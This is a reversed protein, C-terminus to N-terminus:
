SCWTARCSAPPWASSACCRSWCGPPTAAPGSRAPAPDRRADPRRAGHPGHLRRRGQVAPNLAVLFDVIAAPRRRDPRLTPTSRGRGPAAGLSTPWRACTPSSTPRAPAATTPSRSANPALGRRLLRVPQDGDPRRRPRGHHRARDVPEPFVLRALYNGFPDQQWNIFHDRPSVTLSYATIPTRSHPAPRLRVTHPVVEVPEAFAYTTRHKLAVRITVQTFRSPRRVPLVM